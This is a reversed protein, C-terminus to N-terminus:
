CRVDEVERPRAQEGEDDGEEENRNRGERDAAVQDAQLQEVGKQAEADGAASNRIEGMNTSEGAPQDQGEQQPRALMRVRVRAVRPIHLRPLRRAPASALTSGSAVARSASCTTPSPSPRKVTVNRSTM